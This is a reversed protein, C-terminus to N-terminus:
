EESKAKHHHKAAPHTNTAFGHFTCINGISDEAGQDERHVDHKIRLEDHSSLMCPELKTDVIISHCSNIEVDVDDLEKEHEESEHPITSSTLRDSTQRDTCSIVSLLLLLDRM